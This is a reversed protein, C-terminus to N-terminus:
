RCRRVAPCRTAGTPRRATPPWNPTSTSMSPAPSTRRQTTCAGTPTAWSGASTSCRRRNPGRMALEAALAEADVLVQARFGSPAPGRLQPFTALLDAEDLSRPELGAEAAAHIRATVAANAPADLGQLRAQLVVEGNIYDTELSGARKLSQWTSTGGYAYGPVEAVQAVRLGGSPGQAVSLDAIEGAGALVSRAEERLLGAAANRLDSPPYLADLVFTCSALLKGRKWASIDEVATAAFNARRLARALEEVAESPADPYAGLWAVGVSPTGAAVVVGPEVFHAPMGLVGGIVTAFFRLAVRETELGNQTTLLTLTEGATSASGHALTVPRPAWVGLAEAADQTKTALILIDDHRLELEEPSGYVPM